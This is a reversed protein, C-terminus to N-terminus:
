SEGTPRPGSPSVEPRIWHGSRGGIKELLTLGEVSVSQHHAGCAGVLSLAACACATLAEMEVGTRGFTSAQAEVEFGDDALTVRVDIDSVTLPHCLPILTSTVKAAYRGAVAAATMLQELGARQEIGAAGPGGTLESLLVRTMMVRARAVARRHTPAKGTIDVMRAKGSRDVHALGAPEFRDPAGPPPEATM